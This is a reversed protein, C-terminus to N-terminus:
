RYISIMIVLFVITLDIWTDTYYMHSVRLGLYLLSSLVLYTHLLTRCNYLYTVICDDLFFTPNVLLAAHM